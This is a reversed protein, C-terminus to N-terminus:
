ASLVTDSMPPALSTPGCRYSEPNSGSWLGEPCASVCVDGVRVRLRYTREVGGRGVGDVENDTGERLQVDPTNDAVSM